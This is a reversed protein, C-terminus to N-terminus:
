HYTIPYSVQMALILTYWFQAISLVIKMRKHVTIMLRGGEVKFHHQDVSPPPFLTLVVLMLYMVCKM